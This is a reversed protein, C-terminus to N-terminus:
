PTIAIPYGAFAIGGRSDRLVVWLYAPGPDPTTWVDDVFTQDEAESRGTRDSALEGGSVFWSM